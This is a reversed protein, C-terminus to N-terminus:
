FNKRKKYADAFCCVEIEGTSDPLKFFAIEAGDPKRRCKRFGWARQAGGYIFSHLHCPTSITKAM